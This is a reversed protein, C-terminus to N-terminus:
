VVRRTGTGSERAHTGMWDVIEQAIVPITAEAAELVDPATETPVMEHLGTGVVTQFHGTDADYGTLHGLYSRVRDRANVLDTIMRELGRPEAVTQDGEIRSFSDDIREQSLPM